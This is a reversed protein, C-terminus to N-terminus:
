VAGGGRRRAAQGAARRVDRLEPKDLWWTKVHLLAHAEASYPRIRIWGGVGYAGSVYGVLVLDDPVHQERQPTGRCDPSRGILCGTEQQKAGAPPCRDAVTARRRRALSSLRDQAIRLNEEGGSAVPNYFGIREIFRGDRRSRSDTAIINFFPRKKAGGRALRIVVM